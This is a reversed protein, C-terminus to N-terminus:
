DRSVRDDLPLHDHPTIHETSLFTSSTCYKLGINLLMPFRLLGNESVEVKGMELADFIKVDGSYYALIEYISIYTKLM